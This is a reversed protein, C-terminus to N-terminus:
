NLTIRDGYYLALANLAKKWGPTKGTVNARNKIPSRIVLYLVKLASQETPFHGRRWATQRFRANLSEITIKLEATPATKHGPRSRQSCRRASAVGVSSSIVRIRRSMVRTL